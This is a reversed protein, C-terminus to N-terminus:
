LRSRTLQYKSCVYQSDISKMLAGIDPLYQSEMSVPTRPITYKCQTDVRSVEVEHGEKEESEERM